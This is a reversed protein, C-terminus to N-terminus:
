KWPKRVVYRACSSCQVLARGQAADIGQQAPLLSFCGGCTGDQVRVVAQPYQNRLRVVHRSIRAPLMGVLREIEGSIEVEAARAQATEAGMKSREVSGKAAQSDREDEAQGLHQDQGDTEELLGIAETELRDMEMELARIEKQLAKYQRRDSIGIVQDRKATLASEIDRIRGEAGKLTVAAKLGDAEAQAADAEYEEQLERLHLDRRTHHAVTARATALEEELGALEVMLNLLIEPEM